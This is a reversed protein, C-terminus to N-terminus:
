PQQLQLSMLGVRSNRRRNKLHIFLSTYLCICVFSLINNCYKGHSDYCSSSAYRYIAEQKLDVLHIRRLLHVVLIWHQILDGKFSAIELIRRLALGELLYLRHQHRPTTSRWFQTVNVDNSAFIRIRTRPMGKADRMVDCYHDGHAVFTSLRLVHLGSSVRFRQPKMHKELACALCKTKCVYIWIGIQICVRIRIQTVGHYSGLTHMCTIVYGHSTVTAHNSM